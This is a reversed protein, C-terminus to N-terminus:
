DVLVMVKNTFEGRDRIMEVGKIVESMGIRHTIMASPTIEGKAMMGIVRTWDDCSSKFASNWTGRLTLQKRLIQWYVGKELEMDGQPNGMLLVEGGRRCLSIALSLCSSAGTGEVVIDFGEGGTIEAIKAEASEEGNRIVNDAGLTASFELKKEDRGIMTVSAADEAHAVQMLINGITGPGIVAVRRGMIYSCRRLAHVAVACPELMAAEEFSVCDPLPILNWAPVAVYEAFGGDCRSGLYDYHECTEYEERRCSPCNFCPKLPFVGIRKGLWNHLEPEDDRVRCVEGAFEHGPIAPHRYMGTTLIRGVDSGCIGAARVRLLVEGRGLAPVAREEFRLDGAGYLVNAKM